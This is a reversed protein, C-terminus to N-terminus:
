SKATLPKRGRTSSKKGEHKETLDSEEKQPETSTLVITDPSTQIFTKKQPENVVPLEEIIHDYGQTLMIKALQDNVTEATVLVESEGVKIIVTTKQHEKKFRFQAM